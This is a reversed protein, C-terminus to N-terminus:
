IFSVVSLCITSPVKIPVVKKLLRSEAWRLLLFYGVKARPVAECLEDGRLRRRTKRRNSQGLRMSVSQATLDEDTQRM